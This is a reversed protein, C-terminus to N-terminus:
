ALLDLLQEQREAEVEIVRLSAKFQGGARILEYTEHVLNVATPQSAREVTAVAGSRAEQQTVRLPRAGDTSLNAVNHTAASLRMEATHLGSLAIGITGM